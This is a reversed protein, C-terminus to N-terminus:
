LRVSFQQDKAYRKRSIFVLGTLGASFLLISSPVPVPNGYLYSTNQPIWDTVAPLIKVFYGEPLYLGTFLNYDGDEYDAYNFNWRINGNKFLIVEFNNLYENGEDEYTETLYYFIIKDSYAKYGYFGYEDSSLDDYAALIYFNNLKHDDNYDDVILDAISGYGYYSPKDDEGLLQIYGNSDMDFHTYTKGDFTVSFPLSTKDSSSDDNSDSWDLDSQNLSIFNFPVEVIGSAQARFAYFIIGFFLVIFIYFKNRM